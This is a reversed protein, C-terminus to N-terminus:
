LEVAYQTGVITHQDDRMYTYEIDYRGDGVAVVDTVNVDSYNGYLENELYKYAGNELMTEHYDSYFAIGIGIMAIILAVIAIVKGMSTRTKEM